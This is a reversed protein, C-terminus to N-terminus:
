EDSTRDTGASPLPAVAPGFVVAGDPAFRSGHCPCDWAEAVPDWAVVCGMHTCIASVRHLVGASNRYAAIKERDHTVVAAEGAALTEPNRHEGSLLRGKVLDAGTKVNASVFSKASQTVTKRTADFTEAYPNPQGCVLDALIRAAATGGTIGWASFGTATWLGDAGSRLRGVFPMRDMSDFDENTWVHEIATIPFRARLWSELDNALALPDADGPRFSAGTAILVDGREDRHLRVSRTPTGTNIYMDAFGPEGELRAAAAVHHRPYAKTFFGGRDLFPLNTAVVVHDAAVAVAPSGGNGPKDAFRLTHPPGEQVDAVRTDEFIEGGAALLADALGHVYKVPHFQAQGTFRVAASAGFAAPLDRTFSAPLGLREATEAERRVAEVAGEDTGYTYANRHAFDCQIAHRRVTHGIFALAEENARGYKAATEEGFADVLDAYILKHLSTIKATSGGTVQGGIRRAELLVVKRGAQQLLLATTLGVIGGGIVVVDTQIDRALSPCSTRESVTLWYSCQGM